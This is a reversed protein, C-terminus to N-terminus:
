TSVQGPPLWGTSGLSLADWATMAYDVVTCLEDRSAEDRAQISLGDRIASYLGALATTDTGAPLEGETVARPWASHWRTWFPDGASRSTTVCARM